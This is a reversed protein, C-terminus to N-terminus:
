SRAVNADFDCQPSYLALGVLRQLFTFVFLLFLGTIVCVNKLIRYRLVHLLYKVMHRKDALRLCQELQKDVKVLLLYLAGDFDILFM